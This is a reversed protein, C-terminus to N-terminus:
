DKLAQRQADIITAIGNKALELLQLLEDHSFPEGEATGQVEIIRGDDTMIVNMDTDANSDEIYELDCVAQGEVIGVSVAAVLSKIPNQKLKGDAIMKNIADNLAVCAGTISATRTGGDAQIVDCDLTITYEGLLKLDIMARLSRAILRQIEMTRGTQKGKAAERQTRSNTARPLMGYEATVWGQNQGKLFRPVNEEVTANCLVKTEGFEVLVSGEAHKTYHRTIKIPRVQEAARGSPRM